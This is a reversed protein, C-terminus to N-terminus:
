RMTKDDILSSGSCVKKAEEIAFRLSGSVMSVQPVLLVLADPVGLLMRGLEGISNYRNTLTDYSDFLRLDVGDVSYTLDQVKGFCEGFFITGPNNAMLADLIAKHRLYAMWWVNGDAAKM